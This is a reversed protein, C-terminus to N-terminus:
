KADLCMEMWSVSLYANKGVFKKHIDQTSRRIFRFRSQPKPRAQSRRLAQIFIQGAQTSQDYDLRLEQCFEIDRLRLSYAIGIQLQGHRLENVETARLFRLVRLWSLDNVSLRLSGPLNDAMGIVFTQSNSKMDSVSTPRSSQSIREDPFNAPECTRPLIVM